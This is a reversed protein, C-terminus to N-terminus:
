FLAHIVRTFVTIRRKRRVRRIVLAVSVCESYTINLAEERSSHNRSRAEPNRKSSYM